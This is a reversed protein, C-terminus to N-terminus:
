GKLTMFEYFEISLEILFVSDSDSITLRSEREYKGTRFNSFRERERERERSWSHESPHRIALLFVLHCLLANPIELNGNLGTVRVSYALFM